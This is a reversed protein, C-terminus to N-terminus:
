RPSAPRAPREPGLSATKQDLLFPLLGAIKEHAGPHQCVLLRAGTKLTILIMFIAYIYAGLFGTKVSPNASDSGIAAGDPENRELSQLYRSPAWLLDSM